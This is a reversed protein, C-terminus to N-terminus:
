RERAALDEARLVRSTKGTGDERWGPSLFIYGLRGRWTKATAVDRLLAGWEHFAIVLPNYSGINKTLGYDPRDDEAQFTGFLRDWVIFIGGHNRDLYRGDRGHHVRHHSPTNLFLELPGLRGVLETHIWFQYVLSVSQAALVMLPHFGLWPLPLWFIWAFVPATWPQRLATSLNYRTSSHHNVHAAWMFRIEHGARHYVYYCLDECPILLLWAWWADSPLDFLRHEYVALFVSLMVAKAGLAIVLYGLGMAISAASDKLAYGRVSMFRPSTSLWWEILVSVLFLPIAAYILNM